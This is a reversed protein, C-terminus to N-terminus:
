ERGFLGRIGRGWAKMLASLSGSGPQPRSKKSKSITGSSTDALHLQLKRIDESTATEDCKYCYYNGPSDPPGMQFRCTPCKPYGKAAWSMRVKAGPFKEGTETDM